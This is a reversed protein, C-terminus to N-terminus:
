VPVYAIDHPQNYHRISAASCKWNHGFIPLTYGVLISHCWYSMCLGTRFDHDFLSFIVASKCFIAVNVASLSCWSRCDTQPSDVEVETPMEKGTHLTVIPFSDQHIHLTV